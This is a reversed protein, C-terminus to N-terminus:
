KFSAVNDYSYEEAAEFVWQGGVRKLNAMLVATRDAGHEAMKVSCLVRRGKVDVLKCYANDIQSFTHPPLGQKRRMENYIIVALKIQAVQPPIRDLRITINENDKDTSHCMYNVDKQGASGSRDDQDLEIGPLKRRNFFVRDLMNGDADELVAVLDLDVDEMVERSFFLGKKTVKRCNWGTGARLTVSDLRNSSLNVYDGKELDLTIGKNLDLKVEKSLDLEIAM